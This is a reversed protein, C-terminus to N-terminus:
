NGDTVEEILELRSQLLVAEVTRFSGFVVLRDNPGAVALAAQYASTICDFCTTKAHPLAAACNEASATRTNPVSSFFWADVHPAMRQLCAHVPKDAMMGFVALTKGSCARNKLCDVLSAVSQLNHAVDLIHECVSHVMVQQRAPVYANRLGDQIAEPLIMLGQQRLVDVAMLVMAANHASIMPHPLQAMRQKKTHWAWEHEQVHYDFDRSWLYHPCQKEQISQLLTATPERDGYIVPTEERLIGAKELAIQERTNGLIPIHDLDINTIISLTPDILNVPDFRGGLGVELVLLDLNAHKFLWLAALTTWQFYGLQHAGCAQEIVQFAECIKADDLPQGDVQIRENYHLLHPSIFHGVHLESQKAIAALLTVCSGKGNTGAVTVVPCTFTNLELKEAIQKLISFDVRAQQSDLRQLWNALNM